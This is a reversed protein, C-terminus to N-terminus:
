PRPLFATITKYCHGGRPRSLAVLLYHPKFGLASDLQKGSLRDRREAWLAAIVRRDEVPLWNDSRPWGFRVWVSGDVKRRFVLPGRTPAVLAVSPRMGRFEWYPAASGPFGLLHQEAPAVLARLLRRARGGRLNALPPSVREVDVAEPQALDDRQLDSSPMADVLDFSSLDPGRGDRWQVRLRAIARTALDVTTVDEKTCALVLHRQEGAPTPPPRRRGIRRATAAKSTAGEASALLEPGRGPEPRELDVTEM